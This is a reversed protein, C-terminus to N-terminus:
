TFPYGPPQRLSRLHEAVRNELVVEPDPVDPDDILRDLVVIAEQIADVRRMWSPTGEFVAAVTRATLAYVLQRKASVEGDRARALLALRTPHDFTPLAAAETWFADAPDPTPGHLRM